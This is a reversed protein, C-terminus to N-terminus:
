CCCVRRMRRRPSFLWSKTKVVFFRNQFSLLYYLYLYGGLVAGWSSWVSFVQGASDAAEAIPGTGTAWCYFEKSLINIGSRSSRLPSRQTLWHHRRRRIVSSSPLYNVHQDREIPWLPFLLRNIPELFITHICYIVSEPWKPMPCDTVNIGFPSRRETLLRWLCM